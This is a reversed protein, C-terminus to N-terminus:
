SCTVCLHTVALPASHVWTTSLSLHSRIRSSHHQALVIQMLLVHMCSRVYPVSKLSSPSPATWGLGPSSKSSRSYHAIAVSMDLSPHTTPLLGFVPASKQPRPIRSSSDAMWWRTHSDGSWHLSNRTLLHRQSQLMVSSTASLSVNALHHTPHGLRTLSLVHSFTQLTIPRALRM